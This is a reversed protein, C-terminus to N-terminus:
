GSNGLQPLLSNCMYHLLIEIIKNIDFVLIKKM